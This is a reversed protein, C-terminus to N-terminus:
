GLSNAQDQTLGAIVYSGDDLNRTIQDESVRVQEGAENRVYFAANTGLGSLKLSVTEISEDPIVPNGADDLVSADLNDQMTLNLRLEVIEGERGFAAAPQMREIGDSVPTVTLEVDISTEVVSDLAAEGSIVSLQMGDLTGSWNQPPQISIGAPLKGDADLPISWTNTGGAATGTNEALINDVYVLFGVPVGTLLATHVVESGDTDILSGSISLDIKGNGDSNEVGTAQ